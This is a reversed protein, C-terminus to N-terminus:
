CVKRLVAIHGVAWIHQSDLRNDVTREIWSWFSTLYPIAGTLRTQRCLCSTVISGANLFSYIPGGYSELKELNFGADNALLEVGFCTFRHYDWPAGHLYFLFPVNLILAGGPRLMRYLEAMTAMPNKIHELVSCCFITDFQADALPYPLDPNCVLDLEPHTRSVDLSFYSSGKRRLDDRWTLQGAGCDLVNGKVFCEVFPIMRDRFDRNQMAIDWYDPTGITEHNLQQWTNHLFGM